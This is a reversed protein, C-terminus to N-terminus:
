DEPYASTDIPVFLGDEECYRKFYKGAIECLDSPLEDARHNVQLINEEAVYRETEDQVLSHYFPQHRGGQLNDVKMQQIWAEGGPPECTPTWGFVIAKYGYQKHKFVTGVTYKIAKKEESRRRPPKAASDLDRLYTCKRSISERLAQNAGAVRLIDEELFCVDMYVDESMFTLLEHSIGGAGRQRGLLISAMLSAYMDSCRSLAASHRRGEVAGIYNIGHRLSQFINQCTRVIMDQTPSPRLYDMREVGLGQLHNKLENLDRIREDGKSCSPDVYISEGNDEKIIALVHFPYGCMHADLGIRKALSCFIAAYPLPIYARTTRLSTGIYASHLKRYEESTAARFGEQKMFECLALVREKISPQSMSPTQSIFRSALDDLIQAAEEPSSEDAEMNFLDFYSLGEEISVDEGTAIRRLIQVARRRHLFQLASTAYWRRALVDELDKSAKTQDLLYEKADYDFSGIEHFKPIRHVSSSTIEGLLRATRSNVQWKWVFLSKWDVELPLPNNVKEKIKHKPEWYRLKLCREKWQLPSNIINYLKKCVRSTNFIDDDPVYRIVDILVEDPISLLSVKSTM